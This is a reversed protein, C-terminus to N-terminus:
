VRLHLFAELVPVSERVDSATCLSSETCVHARACACVCVCVCVCVSSAPRTVSPGRASPLLLQSSDEPGLRDLPCLATGRSVCPIGPGLLNIPHFLSFMRTANLRPLCGSAEIPIDPPRHSRHGRLEPSLVM